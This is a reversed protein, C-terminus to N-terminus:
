RQADEPSNTNVHLFKSYRCKHRANCIGISGDPKIHYKTMINIGKPWNQQSELTSIRM